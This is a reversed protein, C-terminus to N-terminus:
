HCGCMVRQCELSKCNFLIAQLFTDSEQTIVPLFPKDYQVAFCVLTSKHRTMDKLDCHPTRTKFISIHSQM